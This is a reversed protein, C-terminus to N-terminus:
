TQQVHLELFFVPDFDPLSTHILINENFSTGKEM